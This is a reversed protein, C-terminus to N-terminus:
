QVDEIDMLKYDSDNMIKLWKQELECYKTLHEKFSRPACEPDDGYAAAIDRHTLPLWIRESYLWILEDQTLEKGKCIKTKIAEYKHGIPGTTRRMTTIRFYDLRHFIENPNM